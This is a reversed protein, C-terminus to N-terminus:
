QSGSFYPTTQIDTGTPQYYFRRYPRKAGVASHSSIVQNETMLGGGHEYGVKFDADQIVKGLTSRIESDRQICSAGSTHPQNGGLRPSSQFSKTAREAFTNMELM